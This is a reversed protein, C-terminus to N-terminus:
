SLILPLFINIMSSAAWLKPAFYLSLNEHLRPSIEQVLKKVQEIKLSRREIELDLLDM